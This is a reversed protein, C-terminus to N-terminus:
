STKNTFFVWNFYDRTLIFFFILPLYIRVKFARIADFVYESRGGTM